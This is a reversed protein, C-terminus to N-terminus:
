KGTFEAARKEIFATMGEKADHTNFIAAFAETEQALGEDLSVELGQAAVRKTTAVAFPGRSLIKGLAKRTTDLLEEGPVVKNVLGIRLAEDAKIMDGNLLLEMGIGYSVKRMLRQTGGFGPILGLNVEPQGFRANDAAYIFDCSLALECGGGLAFGNVAAIVPIALREIRRFLDSGLRSFDGADKPKMDKMAAIDAGAVFAKTGSGTIILGRIGKDGEVQAVAQDLETLTAANLANLAKPRNITITAVADSIELTINEFSM